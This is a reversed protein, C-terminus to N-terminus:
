MIYRAQPRMMEAAVQRARERQRAIAEPMEFEIM